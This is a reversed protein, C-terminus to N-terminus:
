ALRCVFLGHDGANMEIAEHRALYDFRTNEDRSIIPVGLHLLDRIWRPSSKALNLNTCNDYLVAAVLVIYGIILLISLVM